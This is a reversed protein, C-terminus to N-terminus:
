GALDEVAARVAVGDVAGLLRQQITSDGDIFYTVPEEALRWEIAAPSLPSGTYGQPPQGGFAAVSDPDDDKLVEVHIFNMDDRENSIAEIIDVEPGCFRSTCFRPTGIIMVTPMGNRLARHLSIQHMSCPPERTCIPDVGRPDDVTPTKTVIAEDGPRPMENGPQEGFVINTIGIQPSGGPPTAEALGFWTGGDDVIPEVGYIGRENFGDELPRLPFPGLTEDTRQKALWLRGNTAGRIPEQGPNTLLVVSMVQRRGALAEYPPVIVQLDQSRDGLIDNFTGSSPTRTGPSGNGACAIGAGTLAALSLFRRRSLDPM